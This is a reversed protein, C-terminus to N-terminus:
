ICPAMDGMFLFPPALNDFAEGDGHSSFLPLKYCTLFTAETQSVWSIRIGWCLISGYSLMLSVINGFIICHCNILTRSRWERNYVVKQNDQCCQRNRCQLLVDTKLPSAFGSQLVLWWSLLYFPPEWKSLFLRGGVSAM